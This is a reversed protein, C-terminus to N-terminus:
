RVPLAILRVVVCFVWNRARLSQPSLDVLKWRLVHCGFIRNKKRIQAYGEVRRALLELAHDKPMTEDFSQELEVRASLVAFRRAYTFFCVTLKPGLNQNSVGSPFRSPSTCPFTIAM